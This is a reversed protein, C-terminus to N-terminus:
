GDKLEWIHNDAILNGPLFREFRSGGEHFLVVREGRREGPLLLLVHADNVARTRFASLDLSHAFVLEMQKLIVLWHQHVLDGLLADLERELRRQVAQPRRAEDRTLQCLDEDGIRRLLEHSLNIAAPFRNGKLDRAQALDAREFQALRAYSGLVAYLHRGVAFRLKDLLDSIVQPGTMKM